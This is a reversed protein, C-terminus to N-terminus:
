KKNRQKKAQKKKGTRKKRESKSITSRPEPQSGKITFDLVNIYPCAFLEKLPEKM